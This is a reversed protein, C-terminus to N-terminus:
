KLHNSKLPCKAIIKAPLTTHLLCSIKRAFILLFFKTGKAYGVERLILERSSKFYVGSVTGKGKIYYQSRHFVKIYCPWTIACLM